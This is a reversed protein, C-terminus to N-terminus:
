PIDWRQTQLARIMLSDTDITDRLIDTATFFGIADGEMNTRANGPLVDFMGGRWNTESLMGRLFEAYWPNVSEKERYVMTGKPFRVHEQAPKFIENVDVSNLSYHYIVAHTASDPLHRYGEVDSWDLELRVISPEDSDRIHAELLPPDSQVWHVNMVQFAEVEVMFSVARVRKNEHQIRLQYFRGPQAAFTSDSLYIGPRAPDESFTFRSTGNFLDLQAGGVAEPEGNMEYVPRTVKVEHRKLESSIKGEVVLLDEEQYHLNWDVRENCSALLSLSLIFIGFRLHKKM